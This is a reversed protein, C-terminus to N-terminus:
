SAGIHPQSENKMALERELQRILRADRVARRHARLRVRMSHLLGLLLGLIFVASLVLYLPMVVSFELPFLSMEVPNRNSFIWLLVVALLATYSVLAVLRTFM